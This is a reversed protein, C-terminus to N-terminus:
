EMEEEKKSEKKSPSGKKKKKDKKDKKKKKEDDEEVDDGEGDKSKKKKKKKKKDGGKLKQTAMAEKIIFTCLKHGMDVMTKEGCAACKHYINGNKRAQVSLHTEPLLCNPCLVFLDIFKDVLAPFVNAQHHGNVISRQGDWTSITGLENAFFKTLTGPTRHLMDALNQCNVIFTKSGNGRGEFKTQISPMKYRYAPDNRSKSNLNGCIALMAM